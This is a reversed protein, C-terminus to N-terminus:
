YEKHRKDSPVDALLEDLLDNSQKDSLDEKVKM